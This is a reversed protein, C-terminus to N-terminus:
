IKASTMQSPDRVKLICKKVIFKLLKNFQFLATSTLLACNSKSISQLEIIFFICHWFLHVQYILCLFNCPFFCLYVLMFVFDKQTVM